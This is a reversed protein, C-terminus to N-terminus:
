VLRQEHVLTHPLNQKLLKNVLSDNLFLPRQTHLIELRLVKKSRHNIHSVCLCTVMLLFM